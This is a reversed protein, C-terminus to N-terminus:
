QDNELITVLFSRKCLFPPNKHLLATRSDWFRHFHKSSMDRIIQMIQLVVAPKADTNMLKLPNGSRKKRLKQRVADMVIRATEIQFRMRVNSSGADAILFTQGAIQFLSRKESAAVAADSFIDIRNTVCKRISDDAEDADASIKKRLMMREVTQRMGTLRISKGQIRYTRQKFLMKGIGDRVRM